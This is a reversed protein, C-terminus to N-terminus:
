RDSGVGLPCLSAMVPVHLVSSGKRLKSHSPSSWRPDNRRRIHDMLYETLVASVDVDIVSMSTHINRIPAHTYLALFLVSLATVRM